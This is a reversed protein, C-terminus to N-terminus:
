RGTPAFRRVPTPPRRSPRAVTAFIRGYAAGINSWLDARTDAYAKRGLADRLKRDGLLRVLADALDTTSGPAVLLGRGRTLREKAYAFPTAVVARGAGMAYALTGSTVRDLDLFPLVVVDAAELWGALEVRGMFRDEFRVHATVGLREALAALDERYAEGDALDRGPQTAGIIVYLVTPDAEIAAPLAEIVTEFGKGPSLLGFSLVVHRGDLGLRPKITDPDVLPLNPVGHPVVDLRAADLGYGRVLLSAAADSMAITAASAGALRRIVERRGPTPNRPVSHLTTVVPVRLTDVLDLVRVGDDGGWIADHYQVSVVDVGSDNLAEGAKPYDEDEDRRIRLRVEAAYAAPGDPPHLAV